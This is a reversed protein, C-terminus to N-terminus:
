HCQVLKRALAVEGGVRAYRNCVVVYGEVERGKIERGKEQLFKELSPSPSKLSEVYRALQGSVTDEAVEEAMSWDDM